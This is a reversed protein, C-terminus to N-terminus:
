RNGDGFDSRAQLANAILTDTYPKRDLAATPRPTKWRRVAVVVAPEDIHARYAVMDPQGRRAIDDFERDYAIDIRASPVKSFRQMEGKFAIRHNDFPYLRRQDILLLRSKAM